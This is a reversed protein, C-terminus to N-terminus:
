STNSKGVVIHKDYITYGLKKALNDSCPNNLTSWYPTLQQKLCELTFAAAVATALGMRQHGPETGISIEMSTNSRVASYAEAVRQDGQMIRFSLGHQLFARISMYGLGMGDMDYGRQHATELTLRELRYGPLLQTKWNLLLQEDINTAIYEIRNQRIVKNDLLEMIRQTWQPTEPTIWHGCFIHQQANTAPLHHLMKALIPHSPDGAFISHSHMNLQVIQPAELTNAWVSVLRGFGTTYGQLLSDIYCRRRRHNNFLPALQKWTNPPLRLM